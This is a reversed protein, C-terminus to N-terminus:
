RTAAARWPAGPGRGPRAPALAFVCEGAAITLAGCIPMRKSGFRDVAMGVPLQMGAYVPIQLVAPLSLGAATAESRAAAAIGAVGLSQRHFIAVVCALVGATWCVLARRSVRHVEVGSMVM